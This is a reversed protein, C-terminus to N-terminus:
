ALCIRPQPHPDKGAPKSNIASSAELAFRLFSFGRVSHPQWGTAKMLEKMTAGGSRKLLDLIKATKSGTRAADPKKGGEPAKKAPSAKHASKAKKPAVHTRRAGVRSKEKPKPTEVPGTVQAKGNEETTSTTM